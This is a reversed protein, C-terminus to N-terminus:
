GADPEAGLAVILQTARQRLPATADNDQLLANLRAIAAEKEGSEIEVLALQEEALVRFPGGAQALPELLSRKEEAALGGALVRKLALLDRYIDSLAPDAALKELQALRAEDGVAGAALLAVVARADGDAEIAAFAAAQADKDEIELAASLADGLAEAAAQARAKRWENFAAGGVILLVLLIAIWGYKRMLAYLRDRRLEENVEDIFHDPNTM